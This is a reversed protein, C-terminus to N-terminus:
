DDYSKILKRKRLKKEQEKLIQFSRFKKKKELDKWRNLDIARINLM